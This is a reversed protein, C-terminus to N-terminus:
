DNGFFLKFIQYTFDNEEETPVFEDQSIICKFIKDKVNFVYTLTAAVDIRKDEYQFSLKGNLKVTQPETLGLYKLTRYFCMGLRSRVIFKDDNYMRDTVSAQLWSHVFIINGNDSSLSKGMKPLLLKHGDVTIFYASRLHKGEYSLFGSFTNEATYAFTTNTTM